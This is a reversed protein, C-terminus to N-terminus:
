ANVGIYLCFIKIMEAQSGRLHEIEYTFDHKGKVESNM